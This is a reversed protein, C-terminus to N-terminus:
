LTATAQKRQEVWGVWRLKEQSNLQRWIDLFGPTPPEIPSPLNSIKNLNLVPWRLPGLPNFSIESGQPLPTFPPVDCLSMQSGRLAGAPCVPSRGPFLGFPTDLQMLMGRQHDGM